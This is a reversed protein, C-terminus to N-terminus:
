RVNFNKISNNITLRLGEDLNIRPSWNLQINSKNIDAYLIMNESQRYQIKGFQPDGKGIINCIKYVVDKIMVPVGSALNFIDANKYDSFLSLFIAEVIDDIFCFDRIQEGPSVPFKLNNLCGDIIQPIFRQKNQGPGYTLFIRLILCPFDETINLMQLFERLSNKAFAYCSRNEIFSNENIPIINEKYEDSSGLTIFKKLLSKDIIHILNVISNFHSNIVEYGNNQFNSHDVYGLCNIIYHFKFKSLCKKIEEYNNIDCKIYIVKENLKISSTSNKSLSYVNWNLSVAKKIINDGIFGTGGLVLINIM